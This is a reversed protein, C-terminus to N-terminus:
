LIQPPGSWGLISRIAAKGAPTLMRSGIGAWVGDPSPVKSEIWNKGDWQRWALSVLDFLYAPCASYSFRNLFMAVAWATGGEIGSPKLPAIAYLSGADRVQFWNRQLLRRTYNNAPPYRRNLQAAAIQLAPNAEALQTPTLVARESVPSRTRHGDFSWHVVMDGRAGACMGWQLDAGDAGGTLCIPRDGVIM